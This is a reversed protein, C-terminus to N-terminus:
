EQILLHAFKKRFKAMKPSIVALCYGNNSGEREYYGQHYEEAKYFVDLPSFVTVIKKDFFHQAEETITKITSLQDENEYYVVSRYQKGTDAGQKDMSTPDHVSYFIRLLDELSIQDADFEVKVVEIHDTQKTCVAKYNATEPTGGMYGSSVSSVGRTKHYVAEVCWFCGGGLVIQDKKM